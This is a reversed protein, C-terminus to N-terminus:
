ISRLTSQLRAKINRLEIKQTIISMEKCCVSIQEFDNNGLLAVEEELRERESELDSIRVDITEILLKIDQKELNQQM